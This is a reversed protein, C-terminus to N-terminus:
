VGRASASTDRRSGTLWWTGGGLLAAGGVWWWWSSAGAGTSSARSTSPQSTLPGSEKYVTIGHAKQAKELEEAADHAWQKATKKAIAGTIAIHAGAAAGAPPFAVALVTAAVSHALQAGKMAGLMSLGRYAWALAGLDQRDVTERVRKAAAHLGKRGKQSEHAAKLIAADDAKSNAVLVRLRKPDDFRDPHIAHLATIGGVITGRAELDELPGSPRAGRAIALITDEPSFVGSVDIKRQKPPTRWLQAPPGFTLGELADAHKRARKAM